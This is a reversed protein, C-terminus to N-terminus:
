PCDQRPSSLSFLHEFGRASADRNTLAPLGWLTEVFKLISTHDYQPNPSDLGHEVIGAPVFSSILFMPVRVGYRDFKFVGSGWIYYTGDGPMPAHPTPVHDAFGGHEDFTMILATHEWDPSNRIAEYITKVFTEGNTVPTPPHYSEKSCCEPNIYSFQPLTGSKADAFFQSFPVVRVAANHLVWNYFLADPNFGTAHNYNLWSIGHESLLQFISKQYHGYSAFSNDNVAHGAATGSTAFARNPNTAGPVASFWRDFLVFNRALNMTTGVLGVDCGDIVNKLKSLDGAGVVNIHDNVFGTMPPTEPELNSTPYITGFLQFLVGTLGHDPDEYQRNPAANSACLQGRSPDGVSIPNCYPHGHKKEYQILNDIDDTYNYYGALNNFSRNELLLVVVKKIKDNLSTFTPAPPSPTIATTPWGGVLSTSSGSTTEGGTTVSGGGTGGNRRGNEDAKVIFGLLLSFAIVAFLVIGILINRKRPEM